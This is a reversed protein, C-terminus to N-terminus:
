HHNHHQGHEVAETQTDTESLDEILERLESISMNEVEGPTIGPYVANLELFIKYRSCSIGAEHAEKTEEASFYYCHTNEHHSTSNELESLIEASQTDDTGSVTISLIENDSLMAAIKENELILNVAEAYNKFQIDLTDALERGDDNYGKVSIIKDFRNVSLEMYPNIDIGIEATPTFYLRNGVFFLAALCACVAGCVCLRRKIGSPRRSKYITQTIYTRTSEKLTEEARIGNFAEKFRNM